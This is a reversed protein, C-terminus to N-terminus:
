KKSSSQGTTNFAYPDVSLKKAHKKAPVPRPMTMKSFYYIKISLFLLIHSIELVLAVKRLFQRQTVDNPRNLFNSTYFNM